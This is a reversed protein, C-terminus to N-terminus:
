PFAGGQDSGGHGALTFRMQLCTLGNQHNMLNVSWTTTVGFIKQSTRSTFHTKMLGCTWQTRKNNWTKDVDEDGHTRTTRMGRPTQPVYAVELEGELEPFIPTSPAANGVDGPASSSVGGTGVARRVEDGIEVVEHEHQMEETEGFSVGPPADGEVAPLERREDHASMDVRESEERLEERAKERVAEADADHFASPEIEGQPVQFGVSPAERKIKTPVVRGGFGSKYEWSNCRFASYFALHGKRDADIRRISRTLVLHSGSYLLFSDQGDVKGLFLARRWKATGKAGVRFFGFVPEAFQAISGSV